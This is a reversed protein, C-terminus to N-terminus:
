GRAIHRDYRSSYCLGRIRNKLDKYKEYNLLSEDIEDIFLDKLANTHINLQLFVLLSIRAYMLVRKTLKLADENTPLSKTSGHVYKSRVGYSKKVDGYIKTPNLGCLRIVAATRQSLKYTSESTEGEKLYLAELSMMASTIQGTIGGSQPNLFLSRYRQLSIFLPSDSEIEYTVGEPYLLKIKEILDRLKPIDHGNLSYQYYESYYRHRGPPYNYFDPITVHGLVTHGIEFFSNPHMVTKIEFASGTGFLMLCDLITRVEAFPPYQDSSKCTLEVIASLIPVISPGKRFRRFDQIRVGDFIVGPNLMNEPSISDSRGSYSLSRMSSTDFIWEKDLDSVSISKHAIAWDVLTQFRSVIRAFRAAPLEIRLVQIACEVNARPLASVAQKALFPPVIEAMKMLSNLLEEYYDLVTGTIIESSSDLPVAGISPQLPVVVTHTFVSEIAKIGISRLELSNKTSFLLDNLIDRRENLTVPVQQQHWPYFYSYFVGTANNSYYENEAEALMAVHKEAATTTEEHFLLEQLARVLERREIGEILKRQEVTTGKLGFEILHMVREPTANAAPYLLYGNSLASKFDKLVNNPSFLWEWFSKAEECQLALLRNVLRLKGGRDLRNFLEFLEPSRNHLAFKALGNAFFDPIVEVCLGKSSVYGANEFDPLVQLISHPQIANGFVTCILELEKYADRKVCVSTLLSLLKLKEIAVNGLVKRAEREYTGALEEAFNPADEHLHEGLSAAHLIIGPEGSAKMVWSGVNYGFKAQAANLLKYADEDSLSELKITKVRPDHGSIYAAIYEPTPLTILLKIHKIDARNLLENVLEEAKDREPDEIIVLTDVNPTLLAILDQVSISQPDVLFTQEKWNKTAELVLRSKGRQPPGSIIIARTRQDDILSRLEALEKERDIFDVITGFKTMRIHGAMMGDWKLPKGRLASLYMFKDAAENILLVKDKINLKSAKGLLRTDETILYDVAGAYVAYLLANDVDDNPKSPKGIINLFYIDKNPDPPSELLSYTTIKSLTNRKRDIDPDRLIDEHSKPHTVVKANLENLTYLLTRLKVELIGPDERFILINTDLLVLM